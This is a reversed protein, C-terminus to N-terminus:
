VHWTTRKFSLIAEIRLVGNKVFGSAENLNDVSTMSSEGWGEGGRVPFRTEHTMKISQAVNLTNVVKISFSVTVAKPETLSAQDLFLYVSLNGSAGAVAPDGKPYVGIYRHPLTFYHPYLLVYKEKADVLLARFSGGCLGLLL